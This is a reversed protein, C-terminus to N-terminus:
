GGGRVRLVAERELYDSLMRTASFGAGVTRLSAKIRRVWGHPIGDEGRDYFLPVVDWELLDFFKVSEEKDQDAPSLDPNSAVGWGNEGDFAEAWWGDLVSMHLGGNIASKMGSTGSAEQPARPLNMWLDCGQVLEAALAMDHEELFVGRGGIGPVDNLAFVEQVTRKATEDQPHARGAIVIQLLPPGQLLKVARGPNSTILYLRKYTAIRRAFGITLAGDDWLRM